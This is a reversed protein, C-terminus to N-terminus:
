SFEVRSKERGCWWAHRMRRIMFCSSSRGRSICAARRETSRSDLTGLTHEPEWIHHTNYQLATQDSVSISTAFSSGLSKKSGSTCHM